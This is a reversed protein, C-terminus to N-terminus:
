TRRKSGKNAQILGLIVAISVGLEGAIRDHLM